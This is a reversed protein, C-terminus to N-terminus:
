HTLQRVLKDAERTPKPIRTRDLCGLTIKIANELSIMHGPSVFIPKVGGRTRLVAGIVEGTKEDQLKTWDGVENGPEDHAGCLRSKACGITPTELLLGMHSAIGLRRPHAMGQGDFMIVDPADGLKAFLKELVPGERFSLLGPIYPYSVKSQVHVREIEELTPYDYVILSAVAGKGDKTFGLDCGAVTRLKRPGGRVIVRSALDRQVEIAQKPAVNWSHFRNIKM